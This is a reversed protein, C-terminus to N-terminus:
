LQCGGDFEPVKGPICRLTKLNQLIISEADYSNSLVFMAQMSSLCLLCYIPCYALAIAPAWMPYLAHKWASFTLTKDYLLLDFGLNFGWRNVYSDTFVWPTTAVPLSQTTSPKRAYELKFGMRTKSIEQMFVMVLRWGTFGKVIRGMAFGKRGANCLDPSKNKTCVYDNLVREKVDKTVGLLQGYYIGDSTSINCQIGTGTQYHYASAERFHKSWQRLRNRSRGNQNGIWERYVGM